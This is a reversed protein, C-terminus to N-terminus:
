NRKDLVVLTMSGGGGGVLEEQKGWQQKFLVGTEM